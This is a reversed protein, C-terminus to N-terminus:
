TAATHRMVHPTVDPGLGAARVLSAFGKNVDGIREGQYEILWDKSITNDCRNKAWRRFHSLARVPIRISPRRKTRDDEGRPRRYFVGEELDVYGAGERVTLAAGTIVGQRSGTCLAAVIFRALHRWLRKATSVGRQTERYTWATWLLV